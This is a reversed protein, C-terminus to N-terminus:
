LWSSHCLQNIAGTKFVPTGSLTGPTRIGRGGGGGAVASAVAPKKNNTKERFVFNQHGLAEASQTRLIRMRIFDVNQFTPVSSIINALCFIKFISQISM